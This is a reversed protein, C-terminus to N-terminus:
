GLFKQKFVLGLFKLEVIPKFVDLLSDLLYIFQVPNIM